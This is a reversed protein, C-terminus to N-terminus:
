VCVEEVLWAFGSNNNSPTTRFLQKLETPSNDVVYANPTFQLMDIDNYDNGLTVVEHPKINGLQNCLWNIGSAKSVGEAFIEIWISQGDLPSTTRIIKVGKINSSLSNFLELNNPIIAIIQTSQTPTDKCLNLPSCFSLYHNIRRNFDPNAGSTSHYWFHHNNPIRDQVMFDVKNEVLESIIAPIKEAPLERSFIIEKTRWNIIGAGSSFICYDIPFSDHLVMGVSYPSRGTAIVRIIGRQKLENLADLNNKSTTNANNLLTGDLDSVVMKVM